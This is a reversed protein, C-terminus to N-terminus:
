PLERIMDRPVGDLFCGYAFSYEAKKKLAAGARECQVRSTHRGWAILGGIMAIVVLFLFVGILDAKM